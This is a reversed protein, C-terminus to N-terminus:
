QKDGGKEDTVEFSYMNEDCNPCYYPYHIDKCKEIEVMSGCRKCYKNTKIKKM